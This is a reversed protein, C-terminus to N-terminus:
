FITSKHCCVLDGPRVWSATNGTIRPKPRQLCMSTHSQERSPLCVYKLLCEDQTVCSYRPNQGPKIHYLLLQGRNWSKETERLHGRATCSIHPINICNLTSITTTMNAAEYVSEGRTHIMM